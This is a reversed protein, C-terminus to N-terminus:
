RSPLSRLRRLHRWAQLDCRSGICPEGSSPSLLGAHGDTRGRYHQAQSYARKVTCLNSSILSALMFIRALLISGIKSNPKTKAAPAPQTARPPRSVDYWGCISGASKPAVTSLGYKGSAGPVVSFYTSFDPPSVVSLSIVTVGSVFTTM